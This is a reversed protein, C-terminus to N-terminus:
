RTQFAIHSLHIERQNKQAKSFSVHGEYTSKYTQIERWKRPTVTTDANPDSDYDYNVLEFADDDGVDEEEEEEEEQESNNEVVEEGEEEDDDGDEDDENGEEDESNQSSLLIEATITGDLCMAMEEPDFASDLLHERYQPFRRVLEL